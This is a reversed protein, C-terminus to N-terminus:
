AGVGKIYENVDFSIFICVIHTIQLCYVTILINKAGAKGIKGHQNNTEASEVKNNNNNNTDNKNYTGKWTQISSTM